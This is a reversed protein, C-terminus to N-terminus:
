MGPSKKKRHFPIMLACGGRAMGCRPRNCTKFWGGPSRQATYAYMTRKKKHPPKRAVTAQKARQQEKLAALRSAM